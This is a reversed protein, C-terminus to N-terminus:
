GPLVPLGARRAASALGADFTAVSGRTQQAALLVCCDPMKAGSGARLRALQMGADVPLSLPEIGLARLDALMREELGGRAARVLVEAETIPGIGFSADLHEAFLAEAAAHHADRADFLAIPVGADLVIM